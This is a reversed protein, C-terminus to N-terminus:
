DVQKLELSIDLARVSHTLAGVSIYDVGTAAVAAVNELSVNGSAELPVRGAALQVAASMASLSMNDLLIRQVDLALAERLEAQHTVEVEIPRLRPDGARVRRVAESLSGGVAAIHNDKILVMDYLGFRHNQGGGLRVAWKDLARLGPATKRTDLIVARTGRVADVYQRTLTAIGSMRQLLNLATREASLLARGPGAVTAIIQGPEVPDGDAASHFLRTHDDLLTFALAAVELGAVIGGQKAVLEGQLRTAPAVTCETTVDGDGLDEALARRVTTRILDPWDPPTVPSTPHKNGVM